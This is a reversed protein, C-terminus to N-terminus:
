EIAALRQETELIVQAAENLKAAFQSIQECHGTFSKVLEQYRPEFAERSRGQWHQPDLIRQGSAQFNEVTARTEDACQAIGAAIEFMRDSDLMLRNFDVNDLM